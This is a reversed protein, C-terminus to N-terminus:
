QRGQASPHLLDPLGTNPLGIASNPDRSPPASSASSTAAPTPSTKTTGLTLYGPHTTDQTTNAFKIPAGGQMANPIRVAVTGEATPLAATLEATQGPLLSPLNADVKQTAVATGNADLISFEVPWNYYFPAVGRNTIKLSVTTTGNTNQIRSETAAFDYGLSAHAAKAKELAAGTYGPDWARRVMLWSAHTGQLAEDFNEAQKGEECPVSEDFVCMQVPPQIEGGIAETQWRNSLGAEQMYSLFHWAATPLTSYAFSDDHFGVNMDSLDKAPSRNLLKTANFAQDWARYVSLEVDRPPMWNEGNPNDASVRGNMPTTHQEGWFGILGTTIFGIRPDGDYKKGLAAVFNKMLSQIRPDSYDPSFSVNNNNYATYKRSQDIGGPGLLYDPVGTQRGPHDLYFRFAAQHGRSSIAELETEFQSWDYSGEGTVVAKLPLYFFEMTHSFESKHNGAQYEFPIFGKLPNDARAATTELPQWGTQDDAHAPALTATLTLAAIAATTAIRLKLM